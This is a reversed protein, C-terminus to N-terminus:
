NNIKQVWASTNEKNSIEGAVRAAENWTPYSGYCVRILGGPTKGEITASYGKSKLNNLFNDAKIASRFCGAIIFYQGGQAKDVEVSPEDVVEENNIATDKSEMVEVDDNIIQTSDVEEEIQSEISSSDSHVPATITNDEQIKVVSHAETTTNDTVKPSIIKDKFFWFGGALVVVMAAASLWIILGRRSSTKKEETISKKTAVSAKIPSLPEMMFPKLGFHKMELSLRNDEVFVVAKSANVKIVGLNEVVFDKGSKLTIVWENVAKKIKEKSEIDSCGFKNAVFAIFGDDVTNKDLRFKLKKDAPTFSHDIPHIYSEQFEAIFEGFGMLGLHEHNVLYEFILSSIKM